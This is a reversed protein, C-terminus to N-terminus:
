PEFAVSAVAGAPLSKALVRAHDRLGRLAVSVGARYDAAVPIPWPDDVLAALATDDLAAFNLWCSITMPM